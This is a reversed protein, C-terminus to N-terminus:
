GLYNFLSSQPMRARASLAAEQSVRAQTLELAAETIDADQLASLQAELRNLRQQVGDAAAATRTQFQGYAQLGQQLYDGATSVNQLATRIASDDNNLLGNRLATLAGFVNQSPSPADFLQQATRAIAFPTGNEDLAQRTSASGAYSSVPTSQTLDITYPAQQDSDGSFIYRGEVRTASIQVMQDLYSGIQAALVQRSQATQTGSVGQAGAVRAAEIIKTASSLAAEGTDVEAKVRTMNAAIQTAHQLDARTQLLESVVDPDDSATQIRLGTSIENQARTVRRQITDLASLFRQAGTDLGDIM